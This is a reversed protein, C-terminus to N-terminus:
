IAPRLSVAVQTSPKFTYIMFGLKLTMKFLLETRM